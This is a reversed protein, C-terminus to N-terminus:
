PYPSCRSRCTSGCEEGVRRAESRAMVAEFYHSARDTEPRYVVGIARERLPQSLRSVLERGGRRRWDTLSRAIGTRRFAHEYSDVRAPRVTKIQIDAGWDSAAAVPGIDTGFGILVAEDGHAMRCLEGINFEGQWGMTTAAANGIHNNHAWVVAKAGAGRHALLAQLTEFMHRDRLNWSQTSSRYMARYYREAARVIRANQM